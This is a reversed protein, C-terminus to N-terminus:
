VSGREGTILQNYVGSTASAGLEVGYAPLPDDRMARLAALHRLVLFVVLLVASVVLISLLALLGVLERQMKDLRRLIKDEQRDEEAGADAPEDFCSQYDPDANDLASVSEAYEASPATGQRCLCRASVACSIDLWNNWEAPSFFACDEDLCWNNPEGLEWAQYAATSGDVWRWDGSEDPGYEFYGIYASASQALLMDRVFAQEAPSRISALAGGDRRCLDQCGVFTSEADTLKFCGSGAGPGDWGRPCTPNYSSSSRCWSVDEGDPCCFDTDGCCCRAWANDREAAAFGCTGELFGDPSIAPYNQNEPPYATVYPTFAASDYGNEACFDFTDDVEWDGYTWDDDYYEDDLCQDYDSSASNLNDRAIDYTPYTQGGYRCVCTVSDDITCSADIWGPFYAPAFVLCDEEVCWNDPEGPAWNEYGFAIRGGDVWRWNGSEDRGAEFGGIYAASYGIVRELYAEEEESRISALTGGLPECVSEECEVFTHFETAVYFCADDTPGAFPAPCDGAAPVDPLSDDDDGAGGACGADGSECCLEPFGCCCYAWADDEADACQLEPTAAQNPTFAASGFGNRACINAEADDDGGDDVCSSYDNDNADLNAKSALYAASPSGGQRCLCRAWGEITCSADSWGQPFWTPLFMGCDEDTCWENPEGPNWHTYNGNWGDVWRWDGSEDPGSEFLGIYVRGVGESAMLAQVSEQESASRISALTGGLGSCVEEQCQVFTAAREPIQFCGEGSWGTSCAARTVAPVALALLAVVM